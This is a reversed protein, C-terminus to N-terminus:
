DFRQFYIFWDPEIQRMYVENAKLAAPHDLSGVIVGEEPQIGGPAYIVGKDWGPGIALLGAGTYIFKVSNDSKILILGSNIESIHHKYEQKRAMSMQPDADDAKSIYWEPDEAAMQRLKEFAARHTLFVDILDSDRPARLYFPDAFWFLIAAIVGLLAGLFLILKLLKTRVVPLVMLEARGRM